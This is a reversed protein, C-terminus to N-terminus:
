PADLPLSACHRALDRQLQTASLYRRNPEKGLATLLLRDLDGELRERWAPPYGMHRAALSPKEPEGTSTPFEYPARGTLLRYLIAALAHVDAAATSPHSDLAPAIGFDLLKPQSAAPPGTALVKSPKLAGHVVNKGHAYAVAQCVKCFLACRRELSLRHHDCYRDIPLGDIYETVRYSRGESTAAADLVRAIYPHHLSPTPATDAPFQILRLVAQERLDGTQRSALYVAGKGGRGLQREIRWPGVLRGILTHKVVTAAGAALADVLEADGAGDNRLLSRVEDALLPHDGCARAVFAEREGPSLDLAASFIEEIRRWSEDPLIVSM